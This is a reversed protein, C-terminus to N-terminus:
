YWKGKLIYVFIVDIVVMYMVIMMYWVNKIFMLDSLRWLLRVRIVGTRGIFVSGFVVCSSFLWILFYVYDVVGVSLIIEFYFGYLIKGKKVMVGLIDLLGFFFIEFIGM